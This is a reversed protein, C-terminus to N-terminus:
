RIPDINQWFVDLLKEYSVKEPEYEIEIAEYHGTKGSSTQKYTATEAKGGTYGSTTRVVGDIVDFPKEMCWFCGGAFVAVKTEAFVSLSMVGLFLLLVIRM